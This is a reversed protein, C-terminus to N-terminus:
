VGGGTVMAQAGHCGICHMMFFARGFNMYTDAGCGGAGGDTGGDASGADGPLVSGGDTSGADFRGADIPPMFGGADVIGADIVPVLGGADAVGTDAAPLFGGADSVGGGGPVGPLVPSSADGFMSPGDGDDDEACATALVATAFICAISFKRKMPNSWM